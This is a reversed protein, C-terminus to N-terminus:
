RSRGPKSKMAWAILPKMATVPAASPGGERAPGGFGPKLALSPKKPVPMLANGGLLASGQGLSCHGNLPM